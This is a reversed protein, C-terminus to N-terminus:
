GTLAVFTWVLGGAVLVVLLALLPHVMRPARLTPPLRKRGTIMPRVLDQRKVVAYALIVVVHLGMLGLLIKFNLAHFHSFRNSLAKGVHKALPGESFVDDNAFLGLVAQLLVDLLLIIVMWGGAANHGIELDPERRGIKALHRLGALPSKLFRGFRATDSGIFGWVFRFILLTLITYGSLFHLQMWNLKNSVYSFVILLVLGWHFLRIPADWVRMSLRM